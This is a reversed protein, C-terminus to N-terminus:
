TDGGLMEDLIALDQDNVDYLDEVPHWGADGALHGDPSFTRAVDAVSLLTDTDLAELAPLPQTISRPSPRLGFVVLGLAMTAALVPALKWKWDFAPTARVAARGRVRRMIADHQTRFFADDSSPPAAARLREPVVALDTVTQACDACRDLHLAVRARRTAPLTGAAFDVLRARYFVCWASM